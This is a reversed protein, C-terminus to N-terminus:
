FNGPGKFGSAEALESLSQVGMLFKGNIEWTPYAKVDAKKCLDPRPTEGRPDCEVYDIQRFAAGFMEKQRTCHPCWYVGYMRAKVRKLHAALSAVTQNNAVTFAPTAVASRPIPPDVPALEGIALLAGVMVLYYCWRQREWQKM